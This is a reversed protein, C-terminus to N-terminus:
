GPLYRHETQPENEAFGHSPSGTHLIPPLPHRGSIGDRPSSIDDTLGRADIRPALEGGLPTLALRQPGGTLGGLLSGLIGSKALGIQRAKRNIRTQYERQLQSFHPLCRQNVHCNSIRPIYMYTMGEDRLVCGGM